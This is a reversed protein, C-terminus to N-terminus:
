EQRDNTPPGPPLARRPAGAERNLWAPRATGSALVSRVTAAEIDAHVAQTFADRLRWEDQRRAPDLWASTLEDYAQVVSPACSLELLARCHTVGREAKNRDHYAASSRGALDRYRTDATTWDPRARAFERELRERERRADALEPSDPAADAEAQEAERMARQLRLQDDWGARANENAQHVDKMTAEHFDRATAYDRWAALAQAATERKERRLRAVEERAYTLWQALAVTGIAVTAGVLGALISDAM